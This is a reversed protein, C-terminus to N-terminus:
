QGADSRSAIANYLKGARVTAVPFLKEKGTRKKGESDTFEFTGPRVELVAIDADSGPRLTGLEVGYNFAKAPNITAMKVVDDITLGLNLFKSLTTPFDYAPGNITRTTVDSSITDPLFGREICKEAVEFTFHGSGHGVDFLIGRQRAEWVEPLLKGNSDLVGHAEGHNYHTLIDGPRMLALIDKLPSYTGGVHIMMPVGSAEAAQRARRLGEMDQDGAVTKSLRAKVGVTVPKNDKVAQAAAKPDVWELNEMVHNIGAILGLAGIDVLAYVRTASSTVIYKRFGAITLYGASGADVITTSGRVLHFQDPNLGQLGVGEYVHTHIDILGPTVIKDKAPVVSRARSAPIDKSLEAIKGNRIAVDLPAHLKQSPDVVTGGKILLDFEQQDNQKATAFVGPTGSGLVMLPLGAASLQCFRRRTLEDFKGSSM